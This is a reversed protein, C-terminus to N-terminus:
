IFLFCCQNVEVYQTTFQLMEPVAENETLGDSSLFHLLSSSTKVSESTREVWWNIHALALFITKRKLCCSIGPLALLTAVQLTKQGQTYLCVKNINDSRFSM